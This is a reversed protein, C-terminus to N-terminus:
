KKDYFHNKIKFIILFLDHGSAELRMCVSLEKNSRCLDVQLPALVRASSIASSTPKSLMAVVPAARLATMKVSDRRCLSIQFVKKLGVAIGPLHEHEVAGVAVRVRGGDVTAQTAALLVAPRM